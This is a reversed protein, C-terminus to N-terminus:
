AAKTNAGLAAKIKEGASMHETDRTDHIGTGTKHTGAQTQDIYESRLTDSVKQQETVERKGIIVEETPVIRKETVLEERYLPVRVTEDKAAIHPTTETTETLPRREVIIEEHKVPVTQQVHEEQVRKHIGVEGAGVARKSVALQEEHLKMRAAEDMEGTVASEVPVQGPVPVGVAPVGTTSADHTTTHETEKDKSFHLKDMVKDMLSPKSESM